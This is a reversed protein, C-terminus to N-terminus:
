EKGLSVLITEAKEIEKLSQGQTKLSGCHGVEGEYREELDGDKERSRGGEGWVSEQLERGRL